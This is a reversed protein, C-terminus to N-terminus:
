ALLSRETLGRWLMQFGLERCAETSEPHANIFEVTIELQARVMLV